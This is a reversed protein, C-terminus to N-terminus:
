NKDKSLQCFQARKEALLELNPIMYYRNGHGRLKRTVFGLSSYLQAAVHLHIPRGLKHEMRKALQTPTVNDGSERFLDHLSDLLVVIDKERGQYTNAKL